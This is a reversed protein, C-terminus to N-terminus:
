RSQIPLSIVEDCFKLWNDEAFIAIFLGDVDSCEETEIISNPLLTIVIRRKIM